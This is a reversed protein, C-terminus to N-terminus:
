DLQQKQWDGESTQVLKDIKQRASDLRKRCVKILKLAAENHQIAEDLNLDEGELKAVLSELEGMLVEFTKEKESM